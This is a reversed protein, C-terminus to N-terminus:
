FEYKIVLHNIIELFFIIKGKGQRLIKSNETGKKTPVSHDPPRNSQAKSLREQGDTHSGGGGEGGDLENGCMTQTISRVLKINGIDPHICDATSLAEYPWVHNSNHDSIFILWINYFYTATWRSRHM